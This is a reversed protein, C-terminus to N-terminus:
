KSARDKKNGNGRGKKIDTPLGSRAYVRGSSCGEGFTGMMQYKLWRFLTVYNDSAMKGRKGM